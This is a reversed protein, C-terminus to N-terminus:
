FLLLFLSNSLCVFVLLICCCYVLGLSFISLDERLLFSSDTPFVFDCNSLLGNFFGTCVNKFLWFIETFTIIFVIFASPHVCPRLLPCWFWLIHPLLSLFHLPQKWLIHILRYSLQDLAILSQFPNAYKFFLIIVIWVYLLNVLFLFFLFDTYYLVFDFLLLFFVFFFHLILPFVFIVICIM